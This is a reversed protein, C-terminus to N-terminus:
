LCLGSRLLRFHRGSNPEGKMAAFNELLKRLPGHLYLVVAVSALGTIGLGCLFMMSITV